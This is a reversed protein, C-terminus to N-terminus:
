SNVSTPQHPTQTLGMKRRIAEFQTLYEKRRQERYERQMRYDELTFGQM